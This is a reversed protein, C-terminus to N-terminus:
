LLHRPVDRTWTRQAVLVGDARAQLDIALHLETATSSLTSAVEVTTQAFTSGSALLALAGAAALINRRIM